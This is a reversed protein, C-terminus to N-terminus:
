LRPPGFPPVLPAFSSAASPLPVSPWLLGTGAAGPMGSAPGGPSTGGATGVMNMPMMPVSPTVLGAPSMAAGGLPGMPVGPTGLPGGPALPGPPAGPSPSAQGPRRQMPESMGDRTIDLGAVIIDARGNHNLDLGVVGGPLVGGRAAVGAQQQRGANESRSAQQATMPRAPSSEMRLVRHLVAERPPAAEDGGGAASSQQPTDSERSPSGTPPNSRPTRPQPAVSLPRETRPSGGCPGAIEGRLRRVTREAAQPRAAQGALTAMTAAPPREANAPRPCGGNAARVPEPPTEKAPPPPAHSAEGRTRGVQAELQSFAAERLRAEAALGDSLAELRAELLKAREADAEARAELARSAEEGVKAVEGARQEVQALAEAAAARFEASQRGTEARLMQQIAQETESTLKSQLSSFCASRQAEGEAMADVRGGLAQLRQECRSLQEKEDSWQGRAFEEVLVRTAKTSLEAQLADVRAVLENLEHSSLCGQSRAPGEPASAHAEALCTVQGSLLTLREDMLMLRADLSNMRVTLPLQASLEWDSPTSQGRPSALCEARQDKLSQLSACLSVLEAQKQELRRQEARLLSERGARDPTQGARVQELGDQVERLGAVRQEAELLILERLESFALRLSSVESMATATAAATASASVQVAENLAAVTDASRVVPAGPPAAAGRPCQHAERVRRVAHLVEALYQQQQQLHVQQHQAQLDQEGRLRQPRDPPGGPIKPAQPPRPERVGDWLIEQGDPDTASSAASSARARAGDPRPSLGRPPSSPKSQSPADAELYRLAVTMRGERSDFAVDCTAAEQDVHLAM